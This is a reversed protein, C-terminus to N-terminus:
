FASLVRPRVASFGTEANAESSNYVNEVAISNARWTKILSTYDLGDNFKMINQLLPM